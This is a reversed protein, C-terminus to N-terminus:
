KKHNMSGAVTPQKTGARVNKFQERVIQSGNPIADDVSMAFRFVVKITDEYIEFISKDYYQLIRNMGSGLQEVLDLDRFIRMLERNRPMSAGSFFDEESQGLVFGSHM